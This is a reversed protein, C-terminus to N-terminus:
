REAVAQHVEGSRRAGERFARRSETVWHGEGGEEYFIVRKDSLNKRAGGGRASQYKQSISETPYAEMYFERMRNYSQIYAEDHQINHWGSVHVKPNYCRSRNYDSCEGRSTKHNPM